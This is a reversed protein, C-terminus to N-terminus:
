EVYFTTISVTYGFYFHGLYGNQFLGTMVRLLQAFIKVYKHDHVQGFVQLFISTYLGKIGAFQM